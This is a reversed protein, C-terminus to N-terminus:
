VWDISRAPSSSTVLNRIGSQLGGSWNAETPQSPSQRGVAISARRFPSARDEPENQSGAPTSRVTDHSVRSARISSAMISPSSASIWAVQTSFRGKANTPFPWPSLVAAELHTRASNCFILCTMVFAWCSLYTSMKLSNADVLMSGIALYTERSDADSGVIEGPSSPCKIWSRFHFSSIDRVETVSSKLNPHLFCQSTELMSLINLSSFVDTELLNLVNSVTTLFNGFRLSAASNRMTNSLIWRARWWNAAWWSSWLPLTVKEILRSPMRSLVHTYVGVLGRSWKSCM